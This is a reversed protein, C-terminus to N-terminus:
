VPLKTTSGALRDVIQLRVGHFPFSPISPCFFTFFFVIDTVSDEFISLFDKLAECPALCLLCLFSVNRVGPLTLLKGVVPARRLFAIVVPFFDGFLNVFGFMEIGIGIMPMGFLVIAMGLFFFVSAKAKRRQFFFRVSRTPGIILMVGSLYLVNGMALLGKDFFLAVGLLTFALGFATLGIGIKRVDTIAFPSSMKTTGREGKLERQRGRHSGGGAKKTQEGSHLHLERKFTVHVDPCYFKGIHGRLVKLLM